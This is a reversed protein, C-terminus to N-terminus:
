TGYIYLGPPFYSPKHSVWMNKKKSPERLPSEMWKNKGQRSWKGPNEMM